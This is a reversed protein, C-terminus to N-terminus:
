RSLPLSCKSPSAHRPLGFLRDPASLCVSFYLHVTAQLSLMDSGDKNNNHLEDLADMEALPIEDLVRDEDTSAFSLMDKTM